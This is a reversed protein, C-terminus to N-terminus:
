VQCPGFTVGTGCFSEPHRWSPNWELLTASVDRLIANKENSIRSSLPMPHRTVEPWLHGCKSCRVLWWLPVETIGEPPGEETM